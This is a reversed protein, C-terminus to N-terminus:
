VREGSKEEEVKEWETKLFEQVDPSQRQFRKVIRLGAPNGYWAFRNENEVHVLKKITPDNKQRLHIKITRDIVETAFWEENAQAHEELWERHQEVYAALALLESCEIFVDENAIDGLNAGYLGSRNMFQIFPDGSVFKQDLPLSLNQREGCIRKQEM